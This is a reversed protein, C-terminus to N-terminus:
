KTGHFFGREKLIRLAEKPLLVDIGYRRAPGFHKVNFTVIDAGGNIAAELVLEDGVDTLAPRYSFHTEIWEAPALLADILAATNEETSGPVRNEPRGLVDEYESILPVTLVIPIEKALAKWCFTLLVRKAESRRSLSM